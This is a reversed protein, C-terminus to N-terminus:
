IVTPKTGRYYSHFEEEADYRYNLYTQINIYFFPLSIQISVVDRSFSVRPLVFQVRSPHGTIELVIEGTNLTKQAGVKMNITIIKAKGFISVFHPSLRPNFGRGEAGCASARVLQAVVVM